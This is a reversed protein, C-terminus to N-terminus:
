YANMSKNLSDISFEDMFQILDRTKNAPYLQTIVREYHGLISDGTDWESRIEPNLWVIGRSRERIIELYEIGSQNGNNRADGFFLVITNGDILNLYQEYFDKLARYYNSYGRRGEMIKMVQDVTQTQFAETYNVLESVFGYTYVGGSFVSNIEYLFSTLLKLHHSVSGSVDLFCVLKHKKTVQRKYHLKMPIGFTKISNRITAKYDFVKSTSQKMSRALKSRFKAANIQIYGLLSQYQGESLDSIVQDQIGSLDLVSNKGEFGGQRHNLVGNKIIMRAQREEEQLGEQRQSELEHRREAFKKETLREEKKIVDQIKQLTAAGTILLDNLESNPPDVMMIHDRMLTNLDNKLQEYPFGDPEHLLSTLSQTKLLLFGNLESKESLQFLLNLCDPSISALMKRHKNIGGLRSGILKALLEELKTEEEQQLAEQQHQYYERLQQMKQEIQYHVQKAMEDLTTKMYEQIFRNFFDDHSEFEMQNKAFMSKSIGCFQDINLIEIQNIIRYFDLVCDPTLTYNYQKLYRSWSQIFAMFQRDTVLTEPNIKRSQNQLSVM